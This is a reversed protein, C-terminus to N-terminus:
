LTVVPVVPLGVKRAEEGFAATMDDDTTFGFGISPLALLLATASVWWPARSSALWRAIRSSKATQSPPELHATRQTM